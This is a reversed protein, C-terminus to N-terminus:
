GYRYEIGFAGQPFTWKKVVKGESLIRCTGCEFCGAYDFTLVGEEYKYLGAPCAKVLIMIEEASATANVEIHPTNEDVHFKDVGLKEEVSMRQMTTKSM